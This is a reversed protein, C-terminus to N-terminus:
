GNDQGGSKLDAICKKIGSGYIQELEEQKILGERVAATIVVGYIKGISRTQGVLVSILRDTNKRDSDIFRNIHQTVRDTLQEAIQTNELGRLILYEVGQSLSNGSNAAYAEIAKVTETSLTYSKVQKKSM